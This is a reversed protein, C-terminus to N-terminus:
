KRAALVFVAILTVVFVLGGIVQAKHTKLWSMVTVEHAVLQTEAIRDTTVIVGKLAKAEAEIEEPIEM